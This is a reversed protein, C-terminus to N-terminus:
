PIEDDFEPAGLVDVAPPDATNPATTAALVDRPPAPAPEPTPVTLLIGPGMQTNITEVTIRQGVLRDTDATYADALTRANSQNCILEKGTEHFGLVLKSQKAGTAQGMKNFQEVRASQITLHIRRGRLDSARMYNGFTTSYDM